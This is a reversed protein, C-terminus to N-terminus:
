LLKEYLVGEKLELIKSAFKFSEEKHSIIIIGHTDSIDDIIELINMSNDNDLASFPEDLLLFPKESVLARMIAVRQSQGESLTIDEGVISEYKKPLNYIYNYLRLKKALEDIKEISVNKNGILINDLISIKFLSYGQPVYSVFNYYDHNTKKLNEILVNGQQPTYLGTLLKILTSKGAGSEGVIYIKEGVRCEFNIESLVNRRGQSYKFSLNNVKIIIDKDYSKNELQREIKDENKQLLESIRFLSAKQLSLGSMIEPLETTPYIVSGIVVNWAGILLGISFYGNDFLIIGIFLTTLEFVMVLTETLSVMIGLNQSNKKVLLMRKDSLQLHKEGLKRHLSFVKILSSNNHYEKFFSRQLGVTKQLEDNIEEMIKSYKSNILCFVPLIIVSILTLEWSAYSVYLLGFLINLVVQITPILTNCIYKCCNDADETIRTLLDGSPYNQQELSPMDMIKKLFKRKTKFSSFQIIKEKFVGSYYVAFSYLVCTLVFLIGFYLFNVIHTSTTTMNIGIQLFWSFVVNFVSLYITCIILICYYTWPAISLKFLLRTYDFGKLQTIEKKM